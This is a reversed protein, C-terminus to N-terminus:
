SEYEIIKGTSTHSSDEPGTNFLERVEHVYLQVATAGVLLHSPHLGLEIDGCGLEYHQTVNQVVLSTNVHAPKTAPLKQHFTVSPLNLVPLTTHNPYGLTALSLSCDEMRLLSLVPTGDRDWEADADSADRPPESEEELFPIRLYFRSIDLAAVDHHVSLVDHLAAPISSEYQPNYEQPITNYKWVLKSDRIDTLIVMPPAAAPFQGDEEGVAPPAPAPQAKAAASPGANSASSGPPDM